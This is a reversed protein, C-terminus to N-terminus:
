VNYPRYFHGYSVGGKVVALDANEPAVIRVCPFRKSMLSLFCASNAHGGYLLINNTQHKDLNKETYELINQFCEELIFGANIHLTQVNLKMDYGLNYIAEIIEELSKGKKKQYDELLYRTLRITFDATTKAVKKSMELRKMFDIYDPHNEGKFYDLVDDGIIEGLVDLVRKRIYFGGVTEECTQRHQKGDPDFCVITAQTNGGCYLMMYRCGPSIHHWAKSELSLSDSKINDYFYRIADIESVLHIENVKTGIKETLIDKAINRFNTPLIIMLYVDLPTIFGLKLWSNEFTDKLYQICSIIVESVTMDTGADSPSDDTTIVKLNDESLRCLRVDEKSADMYMSEADNGIAIVKGNESFLISIEGESFVKKVIELERISIARDANDQLSFALECNSTSIRMCLVLFKVSRDETMKCKDEVCVLNKVTLEIGNSLVTWQFMGSKNPCWKGRMAKDIDSFTCTIEVKTERDNTIIFTVDENTIVSGSSSILTMSILCIEHVLCHTPVSNQCRFVNANSVLVKVLTNINEQFDLMTASKVCRFSISTTHADVHYSRKGLENLRQLMAKSILLFAPKNNYYLSQQFFSIAENRSDKNHQLSDAQNQLTKDKQLSLVDVEGLLDKERRDIIEKANGMTAEMSHKEHLAHERILQMEKQVCQIVNEIAKVQSEIESYIVNAKLREKCYVDGLLSQEHGRHNRFACLICVSKRCPSSCYIRLMEKEHDRQTCFVDSSFEVPDNPNDASNRRIPFLEHHILKRIKKHILVCGYCIVVECQKCRHSLDTHKECMGCIEKEGNRHFDVYTHLNKLNPDSPLEDLGREQILHKEYCDPCIIEKDIIKKELCPICLSHLCPLLRSLGVSTNLNDNCLRCKLYTDALGKIDKLTLVEKEM